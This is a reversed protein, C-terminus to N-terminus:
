ERNKDNKRGGQHVTGVIAQGGESVNVYEVIMKQQGGTRYKKLAEMQAVFTRLMKSAYNVNSKKGEFTQGGLIALRMTEMAMNHVGIMQVALMGEIEDQPHIGSLIATANNAAAAVKDYDAGDTSVTGKFTQIVQDLLHGQFDKDPTGLAELMKVAVLPDDPDQLAITPDRSDSKRSKFKIPKRESRERYHAMRMKEEETLEKRILGKSDKAKSRATRNKAKKKAM